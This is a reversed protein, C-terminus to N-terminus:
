KPFRSTASALEIHDIRLCDKLQTAEITVEQNMYAADPGNCLEHAPGEPREDNFTFAIYTRPTGRYLGIVGSASITDGEYIPIATPRPRPTFLEVTPIPPTSSVLEHNGICNIIPFTAVATVLMRISLPIDKM